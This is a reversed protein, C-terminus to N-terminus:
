EAAASAPDPKGDEQVAAEERTTVLLTNYRYATALGPFRQPLESQLLANLTTGSAVAYDWEREDAPLNKVAESVEIQVGTEASILGLVDVLDRGTSKLCSEPLPENLKEFTAPEIKEGLFTAAEKQEASQPDHRQRAPEYDDYKIDEVQRRPLFFTVGETVQVEVGLPSRRLVQVDKLVSGTMLHIEDGPPGKKVPPPPPAAPPGDAPGEGPKEGARAAPNVAGPEPAQAGAYLCFLIVVCFAATLLRM